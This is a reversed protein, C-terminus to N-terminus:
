SDGAGVGGRAAGFVGPESLAVALPEGRGGIM